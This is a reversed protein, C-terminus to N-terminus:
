ERDAQYDDLHNLYKQANDRTTIFAASGTSAVGEEQSIQILENCNTIVKVLKSRIDALAATHKRWDYQGPKINQVGILQIGYTKELENTVSSIAVIKQNGRTVTQEPVGDISKRPKGSREFVDLSNLFLQANGRITQFDAASGTIKMNKHSAIELIRGVNSIQGGLKGRIEQMQTKNLSSWEYNAASDSVKAGGKFMPNLNISYKILLEVNTQNVAAIKANGEKQMGDADKKDKKVGCAAIVFSACVVAM